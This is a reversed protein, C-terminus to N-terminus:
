KQLAWLISCLCCSKEVSRTKWFIQNECWSHNIFIRHHSYILSYRMTILITNRGPLPEDSLHSFPLFPFDCIIKLNNVDFWVCAHNRDRSCLLCVCETWCSLWMFGEGTKLICASLIDVLILDPYHDQEDHAVFIENWKAFAIWNDFTQSLCLCVNGDSWSSFLHSKSCLPSEDAGNPCDPTNDCVTTLNICVSHGPCQWQWSPCRFPPTPCDREDSMDRCDNDGDCIWSRLVCNGNDCRFFTSPCTRPPCAHHEDSSDECDPHGDCEWTSPICTGDSQCQFESEHHCMGPPRTASPSFDFLFILQDLFVQIYFTRVNWYPFTSNWHERCAREDSRDNCDFVGDCRYYGNICQLGSACKFENATCNYVSFFFGTQYTLGSNQLNISNVYLHPMILHKISQFLAKRKPFPALVYM